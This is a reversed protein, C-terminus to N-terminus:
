MNMTVSPTQQSLCIGLEITEYREEIEGYVLQILIIELIEINRINAFIFFIISELYNSFRGLNILQTNIPTRSLTDVYHIMLLINIAM